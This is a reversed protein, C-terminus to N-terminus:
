RRPVDIAAPNDKCRVERFQAEMLHVVIRDDTIFRRLGSPGCDHLDLVLVEDSPGALSLARQGLDRNLIRVIDQRMEMMIKRDHLRREEAERLQWVVVAVIPAIAIASVILWRKM